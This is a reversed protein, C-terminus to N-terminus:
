DRRPCEAWDETELRGVGVVGDEVDEKVGEVGRRVTRSTVVLVEATESRGSGVVVLACNSLNFRDSGAILAGWDGAFGVTEPRYSRGGDRVSPRGPEAMRGLVGTSRMRGSELVEM